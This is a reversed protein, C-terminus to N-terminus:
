PWFYVIVLYPLSSKYYGHDHRIGICVSKDTQKCLVTHFPTPSFHFTDETWRILFVWGTSHNHFGHYNNRGHNEVIGSAEERRWRRRRCLCCFIATVKRPAPGSNVQLNQAGIRIDPGKFLLLDGTDRGAYVHVTFPILENFLAGQPPDTLDTPCTRHQASDNLQTVDMVM